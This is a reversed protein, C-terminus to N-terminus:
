YSLLAFILPAAWWHLVREEYASVPLFVCVCMYTFWVFVCADLCLYGSMWNVGVCECAFLHVYLFARIWVCLCVCLRVCVCVCECICVLPSVCVGVRLCVSMRMMCACVCM